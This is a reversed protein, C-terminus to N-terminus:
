CLIAKEANETGRRHMETSGIEKMADDFTQRVQDRIVLLRLHPDGNLIRREIERRILLDLAEEKEFVRKM